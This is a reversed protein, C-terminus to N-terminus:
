IRGNWKMVSNVNVHIQIAYMDKPAVILALEPAVTTEAASEWVTQAVSFPADAMIVNNCLQLNEMATSASGAAEVVAMREV